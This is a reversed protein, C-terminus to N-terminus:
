GQRVSPRIGRCTNRRASAAQLCGPPKPNHTLAPLKTSLHSHCHFMDRHPGPRHYTYICMYIYIDVYMCKYMMYIYLYILLYMNGLCRQQFPETYKKPPIHVALDPIPLQDSSMSRVEHVRPWSGVERVWRTQCTTAARRCSRRPTGTAIFCTEAFVLAITRTSVCM